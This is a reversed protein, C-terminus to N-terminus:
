GEYGYGHRGGSHGDHPLEDREQHQGAAGQMNRRGRGGVFDEIEDGRGGSGGRGSRSGSGGGSPDASRAGGRGLSVANLGFAAIAVFYAANAPIQLNFDTVGHILIATVALMAGPGVAKGFNDRRRRWRGFLVVLVGIGLVVLAGGGIIGNEALIQLYDNHAYSLKKWDDVKEYMAYSHVYTGKGVGALPYDGIMEVTNRIFTRRESRSIDLQMFRKIIPDVGLWLAAAMVVAFVGRLIRGLRKKEDRVGADDGDGVGAGREEEDDAFARWGSVAVAALMMTVLFILVGSRSKSFVLGTGLFVSALGLLM